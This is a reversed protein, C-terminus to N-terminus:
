QSWIFIQDFSQWQQNDIKWSCAIFISNTSNSVDQLLFPAGSWDAPTEMVMPWYYQYWDVWHGRWCSRILGSSSKISPNQFIEIKTSSIWISKKDSWVPSSSVAVNMTWDAVEKDSIEDEITELIEKPVKPLEMHHNKWSLKVKVQKKKACNM